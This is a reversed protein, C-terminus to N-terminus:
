LKLRVHYGVARRILRAAYDEAEPPPKVPSPLILLIGHWGQELERMREETVGESERGSSILREDIIVLGNEHEEMTKKLVGEFAPADVVTQPVGTLSFGYRADLPTIFSINKMQVEFAASIL